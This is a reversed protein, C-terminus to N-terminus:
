YIMRDIKQTEPLRFGSLFLRIADDFMMWYAFCGCQHLIRVYFGPGSKPTLAMEKELRTQSGALVEEM